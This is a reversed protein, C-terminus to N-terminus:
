GSSTAVTATIRETAEEALARARDVEEAVAIFHVGKGREFITPSVLLIGTGPDTGDYLLDDLIRRVEDTSMPPHAVDSSQVVAIARQAGNEFRAMISMPISVGGWRGNCEIWRVAAKDLSDGVLLADFSCRGFYGLDQFLLALRMAGESLRTNWPEPLDSTSGGVFRGADGIISQIFVGEIVPDSGAEPIWIQVSPNELVDKEWASLLLPYDHKWGREELTTIVTEEVEQPTPCRLPTCNIRINGYSGASDVVKVVIQRHRAAMAAARRALSKADTAIETEPLVATGFVEGVREAFWLKDNARRTLYPMPAAVSVPVGSQEALAAALQWIVESGIFPVISVEGHSRAWDALQKMLASDAMCAEAPSLPAAGEADTVAVIEPDGLALVDRAYHEFDPKREGAVVVLDGDGALMRMRYSWLGAGTPGAMGIQSRDEIYFRAGRCGSAVGPAYEELALEPERERLDRALNGLGKKESPEVNVSIRGVAAFGSSTRSM